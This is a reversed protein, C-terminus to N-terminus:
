VAMFTVIYTLTKQYGKLKLNVSYTTCSSVPAEKNITIAVDPNSSKVEITPIEKTRRVAYHFTSNNKTNVFSWLALNLDSDLLGGEKIGYDYGNIAITAIGQMSYGAQPAAEDKNSCSYTLFSALSLFIICLARM